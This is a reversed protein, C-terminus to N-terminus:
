RKLLRERAPGALFFGGQLPEVARRLELGFLAIQLRGVGFPALQALRDLHVPEPDDLLALVAAEDETLPTPDPEHEVGTAPAPDRLAAAYMPSLEELVDEVCQVLKAGGQILRHCGASQESTVPGPVALVERGQDLAHAATRLSGSKLSAEVVVVAASLGSILRNRRPFHEPLPDADVPFESLVAGQEAIRDFLATNEAPYPRAFGSGLVAVTRGGADLAGIHGCTDIGRAGGSVVEVGRGALGAALGGAIRRGYATARRSGVVAIRVVGQPLRGRQYLVLPADPLTEFAAPYGPSGAHVLDVGLRRCASLEAEVRARLRARGSVALEAADGRVGAGMLSSAPLRWAIAGPDPYAALLRRQSVPGLGPLLHLAVWDRIEDLPM